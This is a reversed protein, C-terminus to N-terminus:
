FVSRFSFFVGFSVVLRKERLSNSERTDFSDKVNFAKLLEDVIGPYFKPDERLTKIYDMLGDIDIIRIDDDPWLNM